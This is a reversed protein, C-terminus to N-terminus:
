IGRKNAMPNTFSHRTGSYTIIQYDIDVGACGEMFSKIKEPPTATDDAGIFILMRPKVSSVGKPPPQTMGAAISVAAKIDHGWYSMQIATAAGFSSGMAALKNGDVNKDAKLVNLGMQARRKWLDPNSIIETMWKKAVAPDDTTKGDGYMDAAFAVYGAAALQSALNKAWDTLGWWEDIVLIGPRKGSGKTDWALVGNLTVGGDKYSIAKAKVEASVNGSIFFCSIVFVMAAAYNMKRLNMLRM